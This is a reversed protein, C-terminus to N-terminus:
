PAENWVVDFDRVSGNSVEVFPVPDRWVQRPAVPLEPRTVLGKMWHYPLVVRGPTASRVEIRDFTAVVRADGVILRSRFPTAVRYLIASHNRPMGPLAFPDSYEFVDVPDFIAPYRDLVAKLDVTIALAHGINYMKVVQTWDAESLQTMPAGFMVGLYTAAGAFRHQINLKAFPGGVFERGAYYRVAAPDLASPSRDEYLIRVDADTREALWKGLTRRTHQWHDAAPEFKSLAPKLLLFAAALLAIRGPWHRHVVGWTEAGRRVLSLAPLISCTTLAGTFRAPEIQDLLPYGSGLAALLLNWGLLVRTVVNCCVFAGVFGLIWLLPSLGLNVRQTLFTALDTQQFVDAPVAVDLFSVADRAWALNSAVIVALAVVLLGFRRLSKAHIGLYAVFVCPLLIIAPGLLHLVTLAAGTLAFLAIDIWRGFRMWRELLGLVLPALFCVFAFNYMGVNNFERFTPDVHWAAIGLATAVLRWKPAYGLCWATAYLLFPGVIFKALIDFRFAQVLPLGLRDLTSVFLETGKMDVDTVTGAPYGACFFPDYGSWSNKGLFVRAAVVQHFHHGYDVHLYPEPGHRLSAPLVLVLAAVHVAFLATLTCVHIGVVVKRKRLLTSGIRRDQAARRSQSYLRWVLALIPLLIYGILVAAYKVSYTSIVPTASEHRLM